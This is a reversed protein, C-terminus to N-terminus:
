SSCMRTTNVYLRIATVVGNHLVLYLRCRYVFHRSRVGFSINHFAFSKLKVTTHVLPYQHHITLGFLYLCHVRFFIIYPNAAIRARTHVHSVTFDYNNNRATCIGRKHESQSERHISIDRMKLTESMDTIYKIRHQYSNASVGSLM